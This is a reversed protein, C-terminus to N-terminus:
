NHCAFKGAKPSLGGVTGVVTPCVDTDAMASWRSSSTVNDATAGRAVCVSQFVGLRSRVGLYNSGLPIIVQGGKFSEVSESMM